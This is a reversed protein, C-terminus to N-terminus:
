KHQGQSRNHQHGKNGHSPGVQRRGIAVGFGQHHFIQRMIGGVGNQGVHEMFHFLLRFDGTGRAVGGRNGKIKRLLILVIERFPISM